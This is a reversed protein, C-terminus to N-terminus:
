VMLRWGVVEVAGNIGLEAGLDGHRKRVRVASARLTAQHMQTKFARDKRIREGCAVVAAGCDRHTIAV